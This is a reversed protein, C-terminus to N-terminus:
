RADLALEKRDGFIGQPRFVMLAILGLGMLMFRINGVDTPQLFDIWGAQIAQGLFEGTGALLFWFIIGGVIPGFVRAAGGLLLITYAFFTFDPQFTDPQVSQKAVAWVVGGFAAIIGGLILAQLKYVFVNKGLSVVADEDERIGKVVRGWPSRVLLWVLLTFAAVILWGVIVVWLDQRTWSLVPLSQFDAPLPNTDHFQQGLKGNIGQAGGLVDKFAISRVTLRFLESAAITVIALYDARLRLTPIGLLLALVTAVLIAVLISLWLSLDFTLVIVGVAYSGAAVFAVQGFNLLGAYGFQVNLGIAALIYIIATIGIAQTMTQTLIFGWDM